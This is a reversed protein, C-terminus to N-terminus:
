IKNFHRSLSPRGIAPGMGEPLSKLGLRIVFPPSCEFGTMRLKMADKPTARISLTAKAARKNTIYSTVKKNKIYKVGGMKVYKYM